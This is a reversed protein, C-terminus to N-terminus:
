KVSVTEVGLTEKLISALAANMAEQISPNDAVWKHVDEKIGHHAAADEVAKKALPGFLQILHPPVVELSIPHTSNLEPKTANVSEPEPENVSVPEPENSSISDTTNLSISVTANLTIPQTANLSTPHTANLSIPDTANLSPDPEARFGGISALLSNLASKAPDAKAKEKPHLIEDAISSTFEDLATKNQLLRSVFERESLNPNQRRLVGNDQNSINFHRMKINTGSSEEDGRSRGLVVLPDLLYILLLVRM